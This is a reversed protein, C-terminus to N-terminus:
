FFGGIMLLVIAIFATISFLAFVSSYKNSAHMVKKQRVPEFLTGSKLYRSKGPKLLRKPWFKRVKRKM